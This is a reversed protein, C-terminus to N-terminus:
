TKTQPPARSIDFCQKLTKKRNPIEIKSHSVIPPLLAHSLYVPFTTSPYLRPFPNLPLPVLNASPPLSPPFSSSAPLAIVQKRLELSCVRLSNDTGASYLQSGDNSLCVATLRDKSRFGCVVKPEGNWPVWREDEEGEGMEKGREGGRGGMGEVSRHAGIVEVGERERGKVSAADWRCAEGRGEPSVAGQLGLDVWGGVLGGEEEEEEEESRPECGVGLKSRPVGGM